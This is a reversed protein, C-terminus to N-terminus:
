LTKLGVTWNVVVNIPWVTPEAATEIVFFRQGETSVDFGTLETGSSFLAAPNGAEFGGATTVPVAMLKKDSSLYFLEKGDRRWQPLEGGGNSVKTKGAMGQFSQVYVEPRGSEDSVYAVWRGDPSFRAGGENFRTRLYATPKREGVMPLLWLDDGTNTQGDRYIIFKGDPSWDCPEQVWGHTETLQEGPGSDSLAKLVLAPPTGRDAAFVIKQGDPSWIPNNEVGPEFTFRTPTERSLEYIWVDNTGTRPDTLNVALRQGDPSSRPLEYDGTAGFARIEVGTRSVMALRRRTSLAQYVLVGNESVSYDAMGTPQFYRLQEAVPIANSTFRLAQADFPHALLTGDRVYLLYGPPAYAMRSGGRMLLTAGASDLSGLYIDNTTGGEKSGIGSLFLYHRGDPLFFPWLQHAESRSRDPKTVQIPDGGDASVRFIGDTGSAFLIVGDRSWTASKGWQSANCM